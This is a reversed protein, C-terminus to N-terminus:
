VRRAGGDAVIGSAGPSAAEGGFLFLLAAALRQGWATEDHTGAVAEHYVASRGERYGRRALTAAFARANRLNAEWEAATDGEHDGMDLWLRLDSRIVALDSLARGHAWWLSPSMAGVLGFADGAYAGLYLAALGGLSSGLTGTADRGGRTAYVGDIFPMLEERLFRMYRPGDGGRGKSPVWTYENLRDATNGVGVLIVPPLWGGTILWEATEDAHWEKGMFATAASFLNNGDHLYLVPYCAPADPAYGPPLYVWVERPSALHASRVDSHRWVVGTVSTDHERQARCACAVAHRCAAADGAEHCCLEFAPKRDPLAPCRQRPAIRPEM